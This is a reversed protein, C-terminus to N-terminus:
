LCMRRHVFARLTTWLCAKVDHSLRKPYDFSCASDILLQTNSQNAQQRKSRELMKCLILDVIGTLVCVGAIKAAMAAGVKLAIAIKSITM